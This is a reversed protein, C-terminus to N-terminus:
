TRRHRLLRAEVEGSNSYCLIHYWDWLISGHGVWLGPNYIEPTWELECHCCPNCASHWIVGHSRLTLSSFSSIQCKFPIPLATNHHHVDGHSHDWRPLHIALPPWMPLHLLNPPLLLHHDHCRNWCLGNAAVLHELQPLPLLLPPLRQKLASLVHLWGLLHLVAVTNHGNRTVPVRNRATNNAEIPHPKIHGAARRTNIVIRFLSTPCTKLLNMHLLQFNFSKGSLFRKFWSFCKYSRVTSFVQLLCKYVKLNLDLVKVNHKM